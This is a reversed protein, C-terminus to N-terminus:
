LFVMMMLCVLVKKKKKQQVVQENQYYAVVIWKQPYTELIKLVLTGNGLAVVMLKLRESRM